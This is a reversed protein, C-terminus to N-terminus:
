FPHRTTCRGVLIPDWFPKSLWLWIMAGRPLSGFRDVLRPEGAMWRPRPSTRWQFVEVRKSPFGPWGLRRLSPAKGFLKWEFGGGNEQHFVNKPPTWEFGVGLCFMFEVLINFFSFFLFPPVGLQADQGKLM